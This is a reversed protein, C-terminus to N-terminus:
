PPHNAPLVGAMLHVPLTDKSFRQTSPVLSRGSAPVIKFSSGEGPLKNTIDYLRSEINRGTRSLAVDAVLRPASSGLWRLPAWAVEDGKQLTVEVSPVSASKGGM